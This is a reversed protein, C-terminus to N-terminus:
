QQNHSSSCPCCSVGITHLGKDFVPSFVQYQLLYSPSHSVGRDFLWISCFRSGSVHRFKGFSNASPCDLIWVRLLMRAKLASRMVRSEIRKPSQRNLRASQQRSQCLHWDKSKQDRITMKFEKRDFFFYTLDRVESELEKSPAPLILQLIDHPWPKRFDVSRRREIARTEESKNPVFMRVAKRPM